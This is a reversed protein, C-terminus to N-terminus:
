PPSGPRGDTLASPGMELLQRIAVSVWLWLGLVLPAVLWNPAVTSLLIYDYLGHFIIALVLGKIVVNSNARQTRALGLGVGWFSAFLVHMFPLTIARSWVPELTERMFYWNEITAFGLAVAAGYVVGDMPSRYHVHAREVFWWCVLFKSFEEILGIAFFAYVFKYGDSVSDIDTLRSYFSVHEILEFLVLSIPGALLGGGFVLLVLHLPGRDSEDRIYFYGLWALSPAFCTLLIVALQQSM